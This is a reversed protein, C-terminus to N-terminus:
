RGTEKIQGSSPHLIVEVPKARGGEVISKGTALDLTILQGTLRDQGQAVLPNGMLVIQRKDVYYVARESTAVRNEQVVRVDGEAEIRDIKNMVKEQQKLSESINAEKKGFITLRRCTIVINDREVTVHGEFTITRSQEDLVMRDSVIRLPSSPETAKETAFARTWAFIVIAVTVSLVLGQRVPNLTAM